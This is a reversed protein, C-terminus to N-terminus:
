TGPEEGTSRSFAYLKDEALVYVLSRAEDVTLSSRM